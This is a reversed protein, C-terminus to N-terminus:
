FPIDESSASTNTETDVVTTDEKKKAWLIVSASDVSMLGDKKYDGILMLRNGVNAIKEIDQRSDSALCGWWKTQKNEGFGEETALSFYLYPKGNVSTKKEVKGVNGVIIVKIM